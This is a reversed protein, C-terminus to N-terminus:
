ETGVLNYKERRNRTSGTKVSGIYIYIYIYVRPLM